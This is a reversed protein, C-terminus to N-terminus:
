HGPGAPLCLHGFPGLSGSAPAPGSCRTTIGGTREVLKEVRGGHCASLRLAIGHTAVMANIVCRCDLCRWKRNTSWSVTPNSSFCHGLTHQSFGNCWHSGQFTPIRIQGGSQIAASRVLKDLKVLPGALYAVRRVINVACHPQSPQVARETFNCPRLRHKATVPGATDTM